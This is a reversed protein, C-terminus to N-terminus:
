GERSQHTGADLKEWTAGWTPTSTRWSGLTTTMSCQTLSTDAPTPQAALVSTRTTCHSSAVSDIMACTTPPPANLCPITPTMVTRAFTTAYHSNTATARSTKMTTGHDLSGTCKVWPPSAWAQEMTLDYDRYLSPNHSHPRPVKTDGDLYPHVCPYAQM